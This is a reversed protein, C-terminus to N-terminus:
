SSRRRGPFRKAAIIWRVASLDLDFEDALLQASDGARAMDRISDFMRHRKDPRGCFACPGVYPYLAIDLSM